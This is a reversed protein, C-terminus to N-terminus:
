QPKSIQFDLMKLLNNSKLTLHSDTEHSELYIPYFHQIDVSQSHILQEYEQVLNFDITKEWIELEERTIKGRLRANGHDNALLRFDETDLLESGEVATVLLYSNVYQLSLPM